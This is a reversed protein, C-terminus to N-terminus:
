TSESLYWLYDTQTHYDLPLGFTIRLSHYDLQYDTDTILIRSPIVINWTLAYNSGRYAPRRTALQQVFLLPSQLLSAEISYNALVISCRNRQTTRFPLHSRLLTNLVPTISSNLWTSTYPLPSIETWLSTFLSHNLSSHSLPAQARSSKYQQSPKELACASQPTKPTADALKQDQMMWNQHFNGSRISMACADVKSPDPKAERRGNQWNTVLGRSLTTKEKKNAAPADFKSIVVQNRSEM